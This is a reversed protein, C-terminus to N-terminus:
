EVTVSKALNRPRDPDIGRSISVYYALLQLLPLTAFPYLEPKTKEIELISDVESAIDKNDTLAIVFAGRAKVEKINGLLKPFSEDFPALAIVPVGPQILSLPGHKLEGGPYAEAHLYSLEKLKLAGEMAIPYSLGRGIFFVNQKEKITQALAKVKQEQALAREVIQAIKELNNEFIIKYIVALQSSFTKTAAVSVEPGANLYVVSDSLRTISSGIINTLSLLKVGKSKAFKAAQITDATEGSQSIAIVLTGKQPNAVFQYESAIFAKANKRFQKELLISFVLAAHFSTGCAIIHIFKAKEIMRRAQDVNTALSEHLVIKQEYIEKLMFHAFGGKEAVEASWNVEMIKQHREMGNLDQIKYDAATVFVIREDEIPIVKKTYLLVAPIDSALINEGKGVGLILPSNKRAALLENKNKVIAVISYSGRLARISELFARELPLTKMNEEILHAVVESDTESDFKHGKALLDKKLELYNEIVGNHVLAINKSCNSHPHANENCVSGHTAWRTHGLGLKGELSTFMLSDSIHQVKGIGKKITIGQENSIAIGASDYGRYELTKLGQLIVESAKRSGVYGIIGCM